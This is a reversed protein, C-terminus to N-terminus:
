TKALIPLNETMNKSEKDDRAYVEHINTHLGFLYEPLQSPERPLAETDQSSRGSLSYALM